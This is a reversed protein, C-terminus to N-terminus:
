YRNLSASAICTGYVNLKYLEARIGTAGKHGELLLDQIQAMLGSQEPSFQCAFYELDLKGARRYSEDLVAENGRGFSAPECYDALQRLVDDSAKM